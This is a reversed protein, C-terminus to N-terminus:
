TGILTVTYWPEASEDGIKRAIIEVVERDDRIAICRSPDILPNETWGDMRAIRQSAAMLGDCIGTIFNDLDGIGAIRQKSDHIEVVMRIDTELPDDAGLKEMAGRRLKILRERESPKGWMSNAGDKKPPLDGLVTFDIRRM